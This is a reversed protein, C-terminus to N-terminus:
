HFQLPNRAPPGVREGIRRIIYELNLGPVTDIPLNDLPTRFSWMMTLNEAYIIVPVGTADALAALLSEAQSVQADELGLVVLAPRVVDVVTAAQTGSRSTLTSYGAATLADGIRARVDVRDDAILIIPPNPPLM